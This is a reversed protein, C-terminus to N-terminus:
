PCSPRSEAHREPRARLAGPHALWGVLGACSRMAAPGEVQHRRRTHGRRLRRATESGGESARTRTDGPIGTRRSITPNLQQRHRDPQCYRRSSGPGAGPTPRPDTFDVAPVTAKRGIVIRLEPGPQRAPESAPATLRRGAPGHRPNIRPACSRVPAGRRESRRGPRQTAKSRRRARAPGNKDPRPSRQSLFRAGPRRPTSGDILHRDEPAWSCTATTSTATTSRRRSSRRHASGGRSESPPVCGTGHVRLHCARSKPGIGMWM